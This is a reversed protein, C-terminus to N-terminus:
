SQGRLMGEKQPHLTWAAPIRGSHRWRINVKVQPCDLWIWVNHSSKVTSGWFSPTNRPCDYFWSKRFEEATVDVSTWRGILAVRVGYCTEGCFSVHRTETRGYKGWDVLQHGRLTHFQLAGRCRSISEMRGITGGYGNFIQGTWAPTWLTGRCLHFWMTGLFGWSNKVLKSVVTGTTDLFGGYKKM